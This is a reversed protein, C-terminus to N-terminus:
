GKWKGVQAQVAASSIRVSRMGSKQGLSGLWIAFRFPIPVAARRNTPFSNTKVILPSYLIPAGDQTQLSPSLWPCFSTM